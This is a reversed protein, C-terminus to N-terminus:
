NDVAGTASFVSAGEENLEEREREDRREETQDVVLLLALCGLRRSLLALIVKGPGVGDGFSQSDHGLSETKAGLPDPLGRRLPICENRSSERVCLM